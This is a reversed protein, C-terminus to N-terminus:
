KAITFVDWGNECGLQMAEQKQMIDGGWENHDYAHPSRFWNEVHMVLTLGTTEGARVEVSSSPLEVTFHNHVYSTISDPFSHYVQGIGLHFNFPSVQTLTDLWKGNLKMYHYGGGLLEPWFMLSEPPNVFMLSHNKEESIGFTFSLRDYSGPPIEDLLNYTWTSEIDTDVYHIDKWENLLRKNEGQHLTVDSIFYQIENVLYSNGAANEYMMQDVVLTENDVRHEFHLSIKGFTEETAPNDENCAANLLLLLLLWFVSINEIRGMEKRRM